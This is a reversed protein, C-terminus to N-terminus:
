MGLLRETYLPFSVFRLSRGFEPVDNWEALLLWKGAFATGKAENIIKNVDAFLAPSQALTHVQYRIDGQGKSVDIDAFFPSVLTM